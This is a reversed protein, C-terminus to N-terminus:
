VDTLLTNSARRSGLTQLMVVSAVIILGGAWQVPAMMQGLFALAILSTLLPEVSGLIAARAPGLRQIGVNTMFIPLVTSVLAMGVLYVWAEPAAPLRAGLLL